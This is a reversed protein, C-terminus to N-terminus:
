NDEIVALNRRLHFPLSSYDNLENSPILVMGPNQRLHFAPSCNEEIIM